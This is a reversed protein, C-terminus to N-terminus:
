WNEERGLFESELAEPEMPRALLFGQGEDCGLGVLAELQRVTEIGEGVTTIGLARAMATVAAVIASEGSGPELGEVFMRDIKLVNVPFRRLHGLSSYGTGFDDLALQVGLQQLQEFVDGSILSEELMATETIELTLLRAPVRHRALADAVEEALKPHALQRGSINVAMTLARRGAPVGANWLALQRLSENLVWSGLPVILGTEEAVPIFQAPQVVTGDARQWRALAEVGVLRKDGLGIMPQYELRFEGRELGRRIDNEMSLRSIVRERVSSDFVQYGGSRRAKAQYMAADADRLLVEATTEHSGALAIGLSANPRIEEGAHFFPEKLETLIREAVPLAAELGPLNECLVVFEDGGFRAITDSRRASRIIRRAVEILMADGAAHGLSDNVVKFHDLDLFLVALAGPNRELRMLAQDLRDTLLVRNALGTLPDRLAREALLDEVRKRATLDRSVLLLGSVAGMRDHEPVIRTHLYIPAGNVVAEGEVEGPQGTELARLLASEFPELMAQGNVTGALERLSLDLLEVAPAGYLDAAAPNLYVVRLSRDVRITADPTAELMARLEADARRLEANAQAMETAQSQLMGEMRKRATIDHMVGFTGIVRGDDAHLPHRSTALWTDNEGPVRVLEHLEVVPVDTAMVSQQDALVREAMEPELWDRPRKGVLSEPDDMGVAFAFARSARMIRGEADTFFLGQPDSELLNRLLVRDLEGEPLDM